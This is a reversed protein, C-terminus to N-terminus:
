ILVSSLIKHANSTLTKARVTTVVPHVVFVEGDPEIEVAFGEM